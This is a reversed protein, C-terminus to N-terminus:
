RLVTGTAILGAETAEYGTSRYIRNARLHHETREMLGLGDKVTAITEGNVIVAVRAATKSLTITATNM